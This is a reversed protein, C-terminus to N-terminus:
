KTRGAEQAEDSVSKWFTKKLFSRSMKTNPRTGVAVIPTALRSTRDQAPIAPERDVDIGNVILKHRLGVQKQALLVKDFHHGPRIMSCNGRHQVATRELSVGRRDPPGAFMGVFTELRRLSGAM